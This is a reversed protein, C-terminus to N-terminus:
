LKKWRKKCKEELLGFNRMVRLPSKGEKSLDRVYGLMNRGSVCANKGGLAFYIRKRGPLSAEIERLLDLHKKRYQEFQASLSSLDEEPCAYPRVYGKKYFLLYAKTLKDLALLDNGCRAGLRAVTGRRLGERELSSLVLDSEFVTRKSCDYWKPKEIASLAKLFLERNEEGGEFDISFVWEFLSLAYSCIRAYASAEGLLISEDVFVLDPSSVPYVVKKGGVVVEASPSVIKSAEIADPILVCPLSLVASLYRALPIQESGLCVVGSFGDGFAFLSAGDSPSISTLMAYRSLAAKVAVGHRLFADASALFLLKGVPILKQVEEGLSSLTSFVPEINKKSEHTCSTAVSPM